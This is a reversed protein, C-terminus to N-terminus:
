PYPNNRHELVRIWRPLWSSLQPKPSFVLLELFLTDKARFTPSIVLLNNKSRMRARSFRRGPSMKVVDYKRTVELATCRVLSKLKIVTKDRRRPMIDLYKHHLWNGTNFERQEFYRTHNRNTLQVTFPIGEKWVM